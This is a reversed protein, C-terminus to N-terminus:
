TRTRPAKGQAEDFPRGTFGSTDASIARWDYRSLIESRHRAANERFRPVDLLENANHTFRDIDGFPHLLGFEYRPVFTQMVGVPTGLLPRGSAGAEIAVIGFQEYQSPFLVIDSLQYLGGLHRASRHRRRRPRGISGARPRPHTGCVNRARQRPDRRDHDPAGVPGSARLRAMLELCDFAGKPSMVKGVFLLVKEDRAIAHRARLDEVDYNREFLTSDVGFPVVTSSIVEFGDARMLELEHESQPIVHHAKRVLRRGMLRDFARRQWSAPKLSWVPTSIHPVGIHRRLRM